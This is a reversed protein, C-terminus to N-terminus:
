NNITTYNEIILNRDFIQQTYTINYIKENDAKLCTDCIINTTYM